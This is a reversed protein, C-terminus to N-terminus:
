SFTDFVAQPAVGERTLRLEYYLAAAGSASLAGFLTAVVGSFIATPLSPLGVSAIGSAGGDMALLVAGGIGGVIWALIAYVILLGFM